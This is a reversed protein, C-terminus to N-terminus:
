QYLFFIEYLKQVLCDTLNSTFFLRVIIQFSLTDAIFHTITSKKSMTYYYLPGFRDRHMKSGSIQALVSHTVIHQKCICTKPNDM